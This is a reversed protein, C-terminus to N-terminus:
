ALVRDIERAALFVDEPMFPALREVPIRLRHRVMGRLFYEWFEPETYHGESELLEVYRDPHKDFLLPDHVFFRVREARSERAVDVPQAPHLVRVDRGFPIRGYALARWGLDTDERFHPRDFREDFGGIREVVSKRLFLNATMFGFGEFNVNTVVRLHETREADSEVLGEVGVVTPGALYRWANALWAPHPQCDDDTFAIVRGRARAVGLNRARTAGPIDTHLYELHFSPTVSTVDFPEESQDVVVVEFGRFTQAELRALLTRLM